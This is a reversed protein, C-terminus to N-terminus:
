FALAQSGVQTYHSHHLLGFVPSTCHARVQLMLERGNGCASHVQGEQQLQEALHSHQQSRHKKDQTRELSITRRAKLVAEM